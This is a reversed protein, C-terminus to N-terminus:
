QLMCSYSTFNASGGVKRDEAQAKRETRYEGELTGVQEFRRSPEDAPNLRSAVWAWLPYVNLGICLASIKRLIRNVQNSSSGKCLVALCIQNDSLHLFRCCRFRKSRTRWDLGRLIARLKLLGIHEKKSWKYSQAVQWAWRKSNITTRAMSDPRWILGLDLRVDSGRFKARRLFQHVM